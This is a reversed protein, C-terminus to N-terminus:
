RGESTSVTSDDDIGEMYSSCIHKFEDLDKEEQNIAYELSDRYRDNLTLFACHSLCKNDTSIFMPVFNLKDCFEMVDNVKTNNLHKEDFVCIIPATAKRCFLYLNKDSLDDVKVCYRNTNLKWIDQAIDVVSNGILLINKM